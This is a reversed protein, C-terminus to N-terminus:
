AFVKKRDVSKFYNLFYQLIIEPIFNFFHLLIEMKTESNTTNIIALLYLRAM